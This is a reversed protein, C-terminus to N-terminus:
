SAEAVAAARALGVARLGVGRGGRPGSQSRRVDIGAGYRLNQLEIPQHLWREFRRGMRGRPSNKTSRSSQDLALCSSTTSQTLPFFAPQSPAPPHARGPGSRNPLRERTPDGQNKLPRHTPPWQPFVGEVRQALFGTGVGAAMRQLSVHGEDSISPPRPPLGTCFTFDRQAAPAATGASDDGQALSRSVEKGLLVCDLNVIM